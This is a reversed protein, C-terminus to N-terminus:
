KFNQRGLEVKKTTVSILDDEGFLTEKPSELIANLTSKQIKGPLFSDAKASSDMMGKTLKGRIISKEINAWSSPYKPYWFHFIYKKKPIPSIFEPSSDYIPLTVM